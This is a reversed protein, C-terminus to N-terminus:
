HPHTPDLPEITIGGSPLVSVCKHEIFFSGFKGAVLTTTVDDALRGTELAYPRLAETMKERAKTENMM